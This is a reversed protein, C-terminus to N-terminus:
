PRKLTPIDGSIGWGYVSSAGYNSSSRLIGWGSNSPRYIAIDTKGDGDYDAPVPIDGAIGWIYAGSIAYNTSSWVIGWGATSPRYIAIDARGDGDYDAPVPLDGTIGWGYVSYTGYNSSSRLIGWGSNSPRYIAIDTKGDGDYDAPVPIDGAIGWSYVGSTTYNTSSWLIWWGATSPRYIAIDARGDGDYDAPVPLDGAAGWSYVGGPAYNTSSWLIWWGATSPRYIAIDTRGDGDYDAPVPMDGSAGWVYNANTTYNSSSRLIWWGATSPRYVTIDARRDLDFDGTVVGRSAAWGMDLFMGRVIAGLDHIAEGPGLAPTMLSNLNGNPYASEDLHSYSSSSLWPNPAYLKSAIGGNADRANLGNFFVNNSVLQAGLASSPNPFLMTNLLSQSAGNIAFQDYVFPYATSAGWSGISGTRNMSGMFGLGHGLEHLVVTMLDFQMGANGDTGLYWNFSSNFNAEIDDDNPALDTGRLKNAVAVPFWTNSYTAGPFNRFVYTPRASGLVGSGLPRWNAVVRIPVSSQIQAAWVNVAAQFATQAQPTFGNYTVVFTSLAAAPSPQIPAAVYTQATFTGPPDEIIPGPIRDPEQEQSSVLHQDLLLTAVILAAAIIASAIPRRM